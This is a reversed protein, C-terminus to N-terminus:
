HVQNSSIPQKIRTGRPSLATSLARKTDREASGGAISEDIVVSDIIQQANLAVGSGDNGSVCNDMYNNEFSALLREQKLPDDTTKFETEQQIKSKRLKFLALEEQAITQIGGFDRLHSSGLGGARVAEDTVGFEDMKSKFNGIIEKLHKKIIKRDRTFQGAKSRLTGAGTFFEDIGRLGKSNSALKEPDISNLCAKNNFLKNPDNAQNVLKDGGGGNM